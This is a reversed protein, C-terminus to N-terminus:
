RCHLYSVIALGTLLLPGYVLAVAWSRVDLWEPWYDIKKGEPSALTPNLAFNPLPEGRAVQDYLGRFAREQKLYNADLLGFILVALVGLLATAPADNTLAYGYTATVIPLMWTKASSSAQSMRTIVAQIFSLHQRRDEASVAPEPAPLASRVSALTRAEGAEDEAPGDPWRLGMRDESWRPVLHVHLHPVTQTAAEGNSQIVNLGEPALSERIAGVVRRTADVLDHGEQRTLEGLDQVHRNPILLTHGPTAPELPFFATVHHDRYVVRAQSGTGAAIACFPCPQRTTM